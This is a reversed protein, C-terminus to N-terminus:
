RSHWSRRFTRSLKSSSTWRKVLFRQDLEWTWIFFSREEMRSLRAGVVFVFLWLGDAEEWWWVGGSSLRVGRLLVEHSWGVHLPFRWVHLWGPRFRSEWHPHHPRPTLRNDPPYAQRRRNPRCIRPRPPHCRQSRRPHSLSHSRPNGPRMNTLKIHIPSHQTLKGKPIPHSTLPVNRAPVPIRRSEYIFKRSLYKDARCHYSHHIILGLLRYQPADQSYHLANKHYLRSKSTTNHISAKTTTSQKWIYIIWM